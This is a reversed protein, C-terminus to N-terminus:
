RSPNLRKIGSRDGGMRNQDELCRGRISFPQTRRSRRRYYTLEDIHERGDVVVRRLMTLEPEKHVIKIIVELSVTSRPGYWGAKRRASDYIWNEDAVGLQTKARNLLWTGTFDTANANGIKDGHNRADCVFLMLLALLLIVVTRM